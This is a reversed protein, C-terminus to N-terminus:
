PLPALGFLVESTAEDGVSLVFSNDSTREFGDPVRLAIRYDGQSLNEFRFEGDSGTVIAEMTQSGTPDQLSVTQGALSREGAERVANRNADEFVFGVIRGHGSRERPVAAAAPAESAEEPVPESGACASLVVMSVFWAILRGAAM